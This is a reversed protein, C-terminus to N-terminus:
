VVVSCCCTCACCCCACRRRCRCSYRVHCSMHETQQTHTHTRAHMRAHTRAHTRTRARTRAHTRTHTHTHTHTRAHTHTHTHTRAHARTRTRQGIGSASQLGDGIAQNSATPHHPHCLSCGEVCSKTFAMSIHRIVGESCHIGDIVCTHSALNMAPTHKAKIATAKVHHTPGPTPRSGSPCFCTSPQKTHTDQQRARQAKWPQSEAELLAPPGAACQCHGPLL